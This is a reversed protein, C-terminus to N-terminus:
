QKSLYLCSEAVASVAFVCDDDDDNADDDIVLVDDYDIPM